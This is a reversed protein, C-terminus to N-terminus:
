FYNADKELVLGRYSGGGSATDGIDANWEQLLTHQAHTDAQRSSWMGFQGWSLAIKNISKPFQM